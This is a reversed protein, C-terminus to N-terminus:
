FRALSVFRDHISSIWEKATKTVVYACAQQFMGPEAYDIQYQDNPPVDTVDWYYMSLMQTDSVPEFSCKWPDHDTDGSYYAWLKWADEISTAIVWDSGNSFIHLENMKM